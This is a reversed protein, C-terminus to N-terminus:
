MFSFFASEASVSEVKFSLVHRRLARMGDLQYLVAALALVLGVAGASRLITGGLSYGSLHIGPWSCHRWATATERGKYTSPGPAFVGLTSREGTEKADPLM